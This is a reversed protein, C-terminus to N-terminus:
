GVSGEAQELEYEESGKRGRGGKWTEMQEEVNWPQDTSRQGATLVCIQVQRESRNDPIILYEEQWLQQLWKQQQWKSWLFLIM